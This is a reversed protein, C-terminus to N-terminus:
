VRLGLPTFSSIWFRMVVTRHTTTALHNPVSSESSEPRFLGRLNTTLSSEPHNPVFYGGGKTELQLIPHFPGLYGTVEGARAVFSVDDIAPIGSFRKYLNRLELM